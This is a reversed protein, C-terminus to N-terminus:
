WTVTEDGLNVILSKKGSTTAYHTTMPRGADSQFKEFARLRKNLQHSGTRYTFWVDYPRRDGPEDRAEALMFLTSSDPNGHDGNGSFVYHDATVKRFFDTTVDNDAGHHPVKLLDFHAPANTKLIGAAKLADLIHDGRADGTLLMTKGQWRAIVVISSLNFAWDDLYSAPVVGPAQIEKAWQVRLNEVLDESPGLITLQLGAITRQAPAAVIGPFGPNIPVGIGQARETLKSAEGVSAVVPRSKQTPAKSHREQVSAPITDTGVISKFSNLWLQQVRYPNNPGRQQMHGFMQMMGYVHDQDVHSVMAMPIQLREDEDGFRTRLKELRPKLAGDWITKPGGDIVFFTPDAADGFHLILSDGHKARLAELSFLM